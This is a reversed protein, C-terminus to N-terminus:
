TSSGKEMAILRKKIEIGCRYGGLAGNKYVVRHCPIIIPIPNTGCAGGIVRASKKMGLRNAVDQYSQTTGYPIRTMTDWIKKRLDTGSLGIPEDFIVPEGSFYRNLLTQWKTFPHDDRVPFAGSIKKMRDMVQTFLIEESQLFLLHSLLGRSSLLAIPEIPSDLLTYYANMEKMAFPKIVHGACFSL